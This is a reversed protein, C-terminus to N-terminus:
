KPAYDIFTEEATKFILAPRKDNEKVLTPKGEPKIILDQFDQVKARFKGLLKEVQPPSKFKRITIDARNFGLSALYDEAAEENKWKRNSRGAVLKYSKIPEGKKLQNIIWLEIDAMYARLESFRPLLQLIEDVNPTGPPTVTAYTTFIQKALNQNKTRRHSCTAKELCWQCAKKSANFRPQLSLANELAPVLATHLWSILDEPTTELTKFHTESYIRPQGIVIIVKDFQSAFAPNKLKGLAYAFTQESDPFVEIGKGFKWDVVYLCRMEPVVLSYDLTGWVDYLAECASTKAFGGLSVKTEILDYATSDTTAYKQKLTFVYDLCENVADVHEQTLKRAECLQTPVEYHNNDLCDEVVKHLM